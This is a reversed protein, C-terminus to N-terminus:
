WTYFSIKRRAYSRRNCKLNCRIIILPNSRSASLRISPSACGMRKNAEYGIDIM